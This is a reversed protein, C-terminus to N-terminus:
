LNYLSITNTVKLIIGCLPTIVADKEPADVPTM